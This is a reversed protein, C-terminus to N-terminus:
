RKTVSLYARLLESICQRATALERELRAIQERQELAEARWLAPLLDRRLSKNSM